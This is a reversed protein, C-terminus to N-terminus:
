QSYISSPHSLAGCFHHWFREVARQHDAAHVGEGGSHYWVPYPGFVFVNEFITNTRSPKLLDKPALCITFCQARIINNWQGTAVTCAEFLM